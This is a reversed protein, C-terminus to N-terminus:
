SHVVVALSSAWVPRFSMIGSLAPLTPPTRFSMSGIGPKMLFYCPLSLSGLHGTSVLQQVQLKSGVAAQWVTAALAELSTIAAAVATSSSHTITSVWIRFHQITNTSRLSKTITCNTAVIFTNASTAYFTTDTCCPTPLIPLTWIMVMDHM